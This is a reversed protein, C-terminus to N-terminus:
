IHLDNKVLQSKGKPLKSPREKSKLMKLKKPLGYKSMANLLFIHVLEAMLEILEEEARLLEILKSM